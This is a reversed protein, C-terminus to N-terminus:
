APPAVAAATTEVPEDTGGGEESTDDIDGVLARLGAVTDDFASVDGPGQQLFANIGPLLDLARDVSPDAGRQYAGISVLDRAEDYAALLSRLTTAAALHRPAIVRPMLRSASALVDIPPYHGAGALARSLVVHGDLTARALDAIPDDVDDGETLVTYIATISGNRGPGAREVLHPLMSFVSPPYGRTTPPEGAALGVERQALAVRTVSDFLFLVDLGAARFGEAVTTAVRAASIRMAAPTDGTSVVVVARKLAEDGLDHEIFERVERGREGILAIVTVDAATGRALMGLLTSKGVGSGAFIGVRQGRGLTLLGDIARVGTPLAERIPTRDLPHPPEAHLPMRRLQMPSPRGDAPRGLGDLVRGLLAMGVPARADTGSAVVRAGVAVRGREFLALEAQAGRMGACEAALWGGAADEILAIERPRLNIGGATVSEGHVEMVSGRRAFPSLAAAAEVIRGFRASM